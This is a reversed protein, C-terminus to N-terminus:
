IPKNVTYGNRFHPVAFREIRKWTKYITPRTVIEKMECFLEHADDIRKSNRIKSVFLVPLITDLDIAGILDAKVFLLYFFLRLNYEAYFLKGKNFFCCLRKQRFPLPQLARSTSLTRGILLVDYGAHELTSCIRIMRQDYNLDNTVTFVLKKKYRQQPQM